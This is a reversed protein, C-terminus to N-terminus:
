FSKIFNFQVTENGSDDLYLEMAIRGFAFLDKIRSQQFAQSSAYMPTGGFHEELTGATGWDGIAMEFKTAEGNVVDYDVLVNEPKKLPDDCWHWLYIFIISYFLCAEKLDGHTDSSLDQVVFPKLGELVKKKIRYNVLGTRMMQRLNSKRLKMIM